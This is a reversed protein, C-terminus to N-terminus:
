TPRTQTSTVCKIESYTRYISLYLGLVFMSAQCRNLFLHRSESVADAHVRSIKHLLMSWVHALIYPLYTDIVIPGGISPLSSTICIGPIMMSRNGIGLVVGCFCLGLVLCAHMCAHLAILVSVGFRKGHGERWDFRVVRMFLSHDTGHNVGDSLFAGFYGM